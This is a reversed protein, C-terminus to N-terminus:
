LVVVIVICAASVGHLEEESLEDFDISPTSPARLSKDHSM